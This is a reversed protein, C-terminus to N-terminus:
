YGCGNRSIISMFVAKYVYIEGLLATILYSLLETVLLRKM